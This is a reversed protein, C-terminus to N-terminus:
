IVGVAKAIGGIVGTGIAGVGMSIGVVRAQWNQLSTVDGRTDDLTGSMSELDRRMEAIAQVRQEVSAVKDDQRTQRAEMDRLRADIRTLREDTSRDLADLRAMLVGEIRGLDGRLTGLMSATSDDLSM